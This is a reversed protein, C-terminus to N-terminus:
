KSEIFNGTHVLPAHVLIKQSFQETFSSFFFFFNSLHGSVPSSGAIHVPSWVSNYVYMCPLETYMVGHFLERETESVDNCSFACAGSSEGIIGKVSTYDGNRHQLM